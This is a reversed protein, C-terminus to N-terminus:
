EQLWDAWVSRLSDDGPQDLVQALVNAGDSQTRALRAELEKCKEEIWPNPVPEPTEIRPLAREVLEKMAGAAWDNRITARFDLARLAAAARPDRQRATLTLLRRWVKHSTASTWPPHKLLTLVGALARPDRSAENMAEVLVMASAVPQEPLTSWIRPLDAPDRRRALAVASAWRAKISKGEIRGRGLEVRASVKEVLAALRAAPHLRWADLLSPLAMEPQGRALARDATAFCETLSL